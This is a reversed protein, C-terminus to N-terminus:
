STELELIYHIWRIFTELKYHTCNLLRQTEYLLFAVPPRKRNYYSYAWGWLIELTKSRRGSGFGGFCPKTRAWPTQFGNGLPCFGSFGFILGGPGHAPLIKSKVAYVKYYACNSIIFPYFLLTQGGVRILTLVFMQGCYRFRDQLGICRFGIGGHTDQGM